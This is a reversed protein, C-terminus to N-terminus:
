SPLGDTKIQEPPSAARERALALATAAARTTREPSLYAALMFRSDSGMVNFLWYNQGGVNVVVAVWVDGGDVKMQKLISDAEAILERVWKTLNRLKASVIRGAYIGWQAIIDWSGLSHLLAGVIM